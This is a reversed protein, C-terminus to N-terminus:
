PKEQILCDLLGNLEPPLPSSVELPVRLIPHIVRLRCAHLFLRSFGFNDRYWQNIRGKGYTTDGILHHKIHAMHRRIQHRRGTAIRIRLLSGKGFLGLRDFSTLADQKIGKDSTLPVDVAGTEPTTGLVLATYEKETSSNEWDQQLMRAADSSRAFLVIGSAARDIRHVPFVHQGVENRVRQLLFDRDSSEQSRHVLMGSPKEVAILTEDCYLTKISMCAKKFRRGIKRPWSWVALPCCFIYATPHKKCSCEKSM